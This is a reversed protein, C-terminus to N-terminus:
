IKIKNSRTRAPGTALSQEDRLIMPDKIKEEKEPISNQLRDHLIQKYLEDPSKDGLLDRFEKSAVCLLGPEDRIIKAFDEVNDHMYSILEAPNTCGTLNCIDQYDVPAKSFSAPSVEWIVAAMEISIQCNTLLYSYIEEEEKRDPAQYYAEVIRRFSEPNRFADDPVKRLITHDHSVFDTIVDIDQKLHEYLFWYTDENYGVVLDEIGFVTTTYGINKGQRLSDLFREKAGPIDTFLAPYATEPYQNFIKECFESDAHLATMDAFVSPNHNILKECFEKDIKLENPIANFHLSDAYAAFAKRVVEPDSASLEYDDVGWPGLETDIVAIGPENLVPPQEFYCETSAINEYFGHENRGYVKLTYDTHPPINAEIRLVKIQDYHERMRDTILLGTFDYTGKPIHNFEPTDSIEPVNLRGLISAKMKETFFHGYESDNILKEDIVSLDTTFTLARYLKQYFDKHSEPALECDKILEPNNKYINILIVDDTRLRHPINALDKEGTSLHQYIRKIEHSHLTDPQRPNIFNAYAHWELNMHQITDPVMGAIDAFDMLENRPELELILRPDVRLASILLERYTSAEIYHSDLHQNSPKPKGGFRKTEEFRGNIFSMVATETEWNNSSIEGITNDVQIYSAKFINRPDEEIKQSVYLYDSWDEQLPMKRAFVSKFKDLMGM